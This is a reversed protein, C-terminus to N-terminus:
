RAVLVKGLLRDMPVPGFQRSDQSHELNDGLVYLTGPPVVFPGEALSRDRPMYTWEITDGPLGKIRKIYYGNGEAERLVVIDEKKLGGVLWLANSVLVKRHETLAPLMSIGRVEVSTFTLKFFLALALTVLLFITFGRVRRRGKRRSETGGLHAVDPGLKM